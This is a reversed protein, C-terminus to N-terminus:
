VGNTRDATSKKYMLDALFRVLPSQAKPYACSVVTQVVIAGLLLTDKLAALCRWGDFDTLSTLTCAAM